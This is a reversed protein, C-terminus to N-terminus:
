AADRLYFSFIEPVLEESEYLLVRSLIAYYADRKAVGIKERM